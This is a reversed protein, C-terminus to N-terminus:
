PRELGLAFGAWSNPGLVGDVPGTYSGFRQAYTQIYRSGVPGLVGDVPGTYGVNRITLQVGKISNPGFVGDVPGTYRGRAKLAAQIRAQVASSPFYISSGTNGTSGGGAPPPNSPPTAPQGLVQRAREVIWDMNLGGPCATAYSAGHRTHVERHGLVRDRNLPIGYRRSLDAVVKATAEHAAPSVPWSGGVSENAIEFTISRSDWSASSLSWSRLEEPVVGVVEGSNSVAYNASGQKAGSAWSNLVGQFGTTAMHHLVIYQIAAGNRSGKNPTSITRRTHGSFLAAETTGVQEVDTPDVGEEHEEEMPGCGVFSLMALAVLTATTLSWRPWVVPANRICQTRTTIM